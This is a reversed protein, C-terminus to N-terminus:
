PDRPEPFLKGAALGPAAVGFVKLVYERSPGAGAYNFTSHSIYLNGAVDVAVSFPSALGIATAPGQAGSFRPEGSGAVTTIIGQADVKRVRHNGWDSIFLNGASDVTVDHPHNLQADTAAGGDGSFGAQGTGAVTTIIGDASVKRVRHNDMDPIYLNGSADIGLGGHVVGLAAQLAPGGDGAPGREGSGAVTTITGDRSLKRIRYNLADIIYLNDAGDIALGGPLNLLAEVGPGGDGALGARGTGAVTTIIGDTSIKRVRHAFPESLFLNGAGDIAVDSVITLQAQRAPGNDGIGNVPRGGGAVTTIIGDAGIRRLRYNM